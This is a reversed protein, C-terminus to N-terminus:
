KVDICVESSDASLNAGGLNSYAAVRVFYRGKALTSLTASTPAQAGSAYPVNINQLAQAVSFGSASGVYVRYGGGARNVASERNATWDFIVPNSASSCSITATPASTKPSAKNKAGCASLAVSVAFSAIFTLALRKTSFRAPVTM